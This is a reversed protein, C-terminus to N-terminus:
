HHAHLKRELRKRYLSAQRVGAGSVHVTGDRGVLASLRLGIMLALFAFVGLVVPILM